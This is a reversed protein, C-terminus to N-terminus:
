IIVCVKNYVNYLLQDPFFGNRLWDTTANREFCFSRYNCILINFYEFYIKPNEYHLPKTLLLKM